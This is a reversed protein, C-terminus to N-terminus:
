CDLIYAHITRTNPNEPIGTHVKPLKFIELISSFLATNAGSNDGFKVVHEDLTPQTYHTHQLIIEHSNQQFKTFGSSLVTIGNSIETKKM